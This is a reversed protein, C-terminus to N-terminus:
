SGFAIQPESFHLARKLANESRHLIDALPEGSRTEIVGIAVRLVGVGSLHTNQTSRSLRQALLAAEDLATNPAIIWLRQLGDQVVTDSRRLQEAIREGVAQITNGMAEPGLAALIENATTITLLLLSTPRNAPLFEELKKQIPQTRVMSPFALKWLSNYQSGPIFHVFFSLFTVLLIGYVLIELASGAPTLPNMAIALSGAVTLLLGLRTADRRPWIFFGTPYLLSLWFSYFLNDSPPSVILLLLLIIASGGFGFKITVAQRTPTMLMLLALLFLWISLGLLCAELLIPKGGKAHDWLAATLTTLGGATM